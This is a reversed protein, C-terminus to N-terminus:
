DKSLIERTDTCQNFQHLQSKYILKNFIECGGVDLLHKVDERLIRNGMPKSFQIVKFKFVHTLRYPGKYTILATMDFIYKKNVHLQKTDKHVVKYMSIGGFKTLGENVVDKKNIYEIDLNFYKAIANLNSKMNEFKYVYFKAKKIQEREDDNILFLYNLLTYGNTIINTYGGSANLAGNISRIYKTAHCVNYTEIKLDALDNIVIVEDNPYFDAVLKKISDIDIVYGYYLYCKFDSLNMYNKLRIYKEMQLMTDKVSNIANKESYAKMELFIGPLIFDIEMLIKGRINKDFIIIGKKYPIIKEQFYIECRKELKNSNDDVKKNINNDINDINDSNISETITKRNTHM